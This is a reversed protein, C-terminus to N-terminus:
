EKNKLNQWNVDAKKIHGERDKNWFSKVKQSYNFYLKNDLITWTDAETPAKHGDSIGYACYGGYQPAFREPNAKFSDLNAKTAFLWTADKWVFSNSPSGALAKQELHFAVVDYGKIAMGEPAFIESKQAVAYLGSLLVMSLITLHKKM